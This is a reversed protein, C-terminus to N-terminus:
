ARPAAWLLGAGSVTTILSNLWQKLDEPSQPKVILIRNMTQDVIEEAPNAAAASGDASAAAAAALAEPPAAAIRALVM